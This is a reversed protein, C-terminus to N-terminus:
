AIPRLIDAVIPFHQIRTRNKERKGPCSEITRICKKIFKMTEDYHLGVVRPRQLKGM